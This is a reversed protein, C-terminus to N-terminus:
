WGGQKRIRPLCESFARLANATLRKLEDRPMDELRNLPEREFTLYLTMTQKDKAKGARGSKIKLHCVQTQGTPDSIEVRVQLDKEFLGVARAVPPDGDVMIPGSRPAAVIEQVVEHAQQNADAAGDVVYPRKGKKAKGKAKPAVM